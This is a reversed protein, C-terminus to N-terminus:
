IRSKKQFSCMRISFYHFVQIKLAIRSLNEKVDLEIPPQKYEVFGDIKEKSEMM